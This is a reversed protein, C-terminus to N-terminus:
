TSSSLFPKGAFARCQNGRPDQVRGDTFAGNQRLLHGLYRSLLTDTVSEEFIGDVSLAESTVNSKKM